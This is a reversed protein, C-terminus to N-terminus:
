INAKEVAKATANSELQQEQSATSNSQPNPMTIYMEDSYDASDIESNIKDLVNVDQDFLAKNAITKAMTKRYTESKVVTDTMLFLEAKKMVDEKNWGEFGKVVFKEDAEERTIAIIKLTNRMAELIIDGYSVLIIETARWDERKSDGSLRVRSADSDAALAMQHIVRYIEDKKIGINNETYLFSKGSPELYGAEDDKGLRIGYGAAPKFEKDAFMNKFYPTAHAARSLSFDHDNQARFYAIAPDRLKQAMWLGDPLEIRVVPMIGYKHEVSLTESAEDGELTVNVSGDERKGVSAKARWQRIIIDDLYTWTKYTEPKSLISPREVSLERFLMYQLKGYDNDRWYYVEKGYSLLRVDLLGLKEQEARSSPISATQTKQPLDVWIFARGFVVLKVFIDKWFGAWSTGRGDVNSLFKTYYDSNQFGEVRPPDAFLLSAYFDIISGVHNVYTALAVRDKYADDMENFKKPLWRKYFAKAFDGGQYLAEYELLSEEHYNEQLIDLLEIKM